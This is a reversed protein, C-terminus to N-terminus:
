FQSYGRFGPKPHSLPRASQLTQQQMWRSLKNPPHSDSKVGYVRKMTEFWFLLVKKRPRQNIHNVQLKVTNKEQTGQSAPFDYHQRSGDKGTTYQIKFFLYNTSRSASAMHFIVVVVHLCRTTQYKSITVSVWKYSIKMLTLRKLGFGSDRRCTERAWQVLM